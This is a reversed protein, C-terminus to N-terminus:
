NSMVPISNLSFEATEASSALTQDIPSKKAWGEGLMIRESASYM